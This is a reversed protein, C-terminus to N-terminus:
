ILLQLRRSEDPNDKELYTEFNHTFNVYKLPDGHFQHYEVKPSSVVQRLAKVMEQGSDFQQNTPEVEVDQPVSPRPMQWSSSWSETVCQGTSTQKPKTKPLLPDVLPSYCSSMLHPSSYRPKWVMATPVTLMNGALSNSLTVTSAPLSTTLEVSVPVIVEAQGVGGSLAPTENSLASTVMTANELLVALQDNASLKSMRDQVENEQLAPELYELFPNKPSKDIEEYLQLSVAARAAELKAELLERKRRIEQEEKEQKERIAHQQEDLPQRLKLQRLNLQALALKEKKRSM